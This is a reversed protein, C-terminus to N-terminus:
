CIEVNGCDCHVLIMRHSFMYLYVVSFISEVVILFFSYEFGFRGLKRIGCRVAEENNLQEVMRHTKRRTEVVIQTFM